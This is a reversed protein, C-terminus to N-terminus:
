NVRKLTARQRKIEEEIRADARKTNAKIRYGGEPLRRPRAESIVVARETAGGRGLPAENRRHALSRRGHVVGAGNEPNAKAESKSPPPSRCHFVATVAPALRRGASFPVRM